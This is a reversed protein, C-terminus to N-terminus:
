ATFAGRAVQPMPVERAAVPEPKGTTLVWAGRDEQLRKVLQAHIAHGAKYAVVHGMIPYGLLALDGVLDLAKHRVFEDDFRLHNLPGADGVVVANAFSGGLALGRERLRRVDRLMCFTRAPAIENVFTRRDITRTITQRGIAPHPFDITYTVRFDDAPYITVERDGDLVGVPRKLRIVRRPTGLGRLGAERVLYVFPAASGDMIPIEDGSVRIMANDIGMGRVAALLHEVTSISFGDGALTTAHDVRAIHTSEDLRIFAGSRDDRMFTIGADAGAPQIRLRIRKGTHLGVGVVDIQTRLTQQM